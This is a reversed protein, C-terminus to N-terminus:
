GDEEPNETTADDGEDAGQGPAQHMGAGGAGHPMSGGQAVLMLVGEWDLIDGYFSNTVADRRIADSFATLNMGMPSPLDRSHLFFADEVAILTPPNQFDTVWMSHVDDHAVSEELYFGALCEISDFVYVKSTETVLEAGYGEDVITMRCYDGVDEGYAIPRPGPECGAALVTLGLGVGVATLARAGPPSM